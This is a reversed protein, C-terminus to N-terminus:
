VPPTGLRISLPRVPRSREARRRASAQPWASPPTRPRSGQPADRRELARLQRLAARDSWLRGRVIQWNHFPEPVTGNFLVNDYRIEDSGNCSLGLHPLYSAVAKGVQHFTKSDKSFPLPVSKPSTQGRPPPTHAKTRTTNKVPKGPKASMRRLIIAMPAPQMNLEEGTELRIPTFRGHM